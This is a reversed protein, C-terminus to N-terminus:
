YQNEYSEKPEKKADRIHWYSDKRKDIREDLIDKNMLRIVIGIPTIVLYFLITLIIRSVFFGIVISLAMWAKQLPKLISSFLLGATIFVVGVGLLYPYMPKNKYLVVLGLIVLIAGITLGFEKLEKKTSKINKIDEIM